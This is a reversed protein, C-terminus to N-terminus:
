ENKMGGIVVCFTCERLCCIDDFFAPCAPFDAGITAGFCDDGFAFAGLLICLLDREPANQFELHQRTVEVLALMIPQKM